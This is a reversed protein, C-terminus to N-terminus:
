LSLNLVEVRCPVGSHPSKSDSFHLVCVNVQVCGSMFIDKTLKIRNINRSDM